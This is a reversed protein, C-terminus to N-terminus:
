LEIDHLVAEVARARVENPKALLSVPVDGVVVRRQGISGVLELDIELLQALHERLASPRLLVDQNRDRAAGGVSRRAHPLSRVLRDSAFDFAERMHDEGAAWCLTLEPEALPIKGRIFHSGSVAAQFGTQVPTVCVFEVIDSRGESVPEGPDLTPQLEISQALRADIRAAARM